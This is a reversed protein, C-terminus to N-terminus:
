LIAGLLENRRLNCSRTQQANEFDDRSRRTSAYLVLGGIVQRFRTLTELHSKSLARTILAYRLSFQNDLM